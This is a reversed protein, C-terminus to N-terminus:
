DRLRCGVELELSTNDGATGGIDLEEDDHDVFVPTTPVDHDQAAGAGQSAGELRLLREAEVSIAPWESQPPMGEGRAEIIENFKARIADDTIVLVEAATTTLDAGAGEEVPETKVVAEDVPEYTIQEEVVQPAVQIAAPAPLARWAPSPQNTRHRKNTDEELAAMEAMLSSQKEDAERARKNRARVEAVYVENAHAVAALQHPQCELQERLQYGHDQRISGILKAKRPDVDSVLSGM